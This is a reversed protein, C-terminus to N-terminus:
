KVISKHCCSCNAVHSNMLGVTVIESFSHFDQCLKKDNAIQMNIQKECPCNLQSMKSKLHSWFYSSVLPVNSTFAQLDHIKNLQELNNKNKSDM